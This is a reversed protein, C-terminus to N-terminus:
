HTHDYKCLYSKTIICYSRKKITSIKRFRKMLMQKLVPRFNYLHLPLIMRSKLEILAKTLKIFWIPFHKILSVDQKILSVDQKILSVEQKKSDYYQKNYIKRDTKTRIPKVKNICDLDNFWKMECKRLEDRSNVYITELLGYSYNNRQIIQKSTCKNFKSRHGVMRKAVTPEFTSGVYIEDTLNCVIQYILGQKNM